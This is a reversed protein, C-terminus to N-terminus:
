KIHPLTYKTMNIYGYLNVEMVRKLIELNQLESFKGHAAVGAALVVIDIRGHKEIMFDVIKKCDSEIACDGTIYHVNLNSFDSHISAVLEKLATEHRGTVVM